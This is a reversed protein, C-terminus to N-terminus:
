GPTVRASPTARAARAPLELVLRAGRTSPAAALRGGHAAAVAHAIRLGHGHRDGPRPCRILDVVPANLGPGQDSVEVRVLGPLVRGSVEVEGGGHEIANAILNGTAQALRPRDGAVFADPGSWRLRLEVGRVGAAARWAEVSDELLGRLSIPAAPARGGARRPALELDDLAVAARGLELEIARLRAAPLRGQRGELALGLSVAALPGRLEHCAEAVAALRRTHARGLVAAATVALAAVPWGALVLASGIM